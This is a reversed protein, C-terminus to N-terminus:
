LPFASILSEQFFIPLPSSPHKTQFGPHCFCLSARIRKTFGSTNLIETNEGIIILFKATEDSLKETGSVVVLHSGSSSLFIPDPNELVCLPKEEEEKIRLAEKQLWFLNDVIQHNLYAAANEQIPAIREPVTPSSIEFTTMQAIFECRTQNHIVPTANVHPLLERDLKVVEVSFLLTERQDM